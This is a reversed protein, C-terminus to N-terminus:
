YVASNDLVNFPLCSANVEFYKFCLKPLGHDGAIIRRCGVNLQWHNGSHSKGTKQLIAYLPYM